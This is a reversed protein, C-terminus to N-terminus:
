LMRLVKLILTVCDFSIWRNTIECVKYLKHQRTKVGTLFKWIRNNKVRNQVNWYLSKAWKRGFSKLELCLTHFLIMMKFTYGFMSMNWTRIFKKPSNFYYKETSKCKSTWPYNSYQMSIVWASIKYFIHIFDVVFM